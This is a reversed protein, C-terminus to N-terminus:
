RASTNKSLAAILEQLKERLEEVNSCSKVIKTINELEDLKAKKRRCEKEEEYVAQDRAIEKYNQAILRNESICKIPLPIHYYRIMYQPETINNTSEHKNSLLSYRRDIKEKDLIAGVKAFANQSQKNNGEIRVSIQKLAYKHYLNNAFLMVAEPGYGKNQEESTLSIGIDPQGEDNHQLAIWGIVKDGTLFRIAHTEDKATHELIDVFGSSMSRCSYKQYEDYISGFLLREYDEKDTEQLPTIRIRKGVIIDDWDRFLM